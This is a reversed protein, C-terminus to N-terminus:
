CIRPLNQKLTLINDYNHSKLVFLKMLLFSRYTDSHEVAEELEALLSKNSGNTNQFFDSRISSFLLFLASKDRDLLKAEEYVERAKRWNELLYYLEAIYCCIEAKYTINKLLELCTIYDQLAQVDKFLKANVEGRNRYLLMYSPFSKIGLNLVELAKESNNCISETRGLNNYLIAKEQDFFLIEKSFKIGIEYGKKAETFSISTISCIEIMANGIWTLPIFLSEKCSKYCTFCQLFYHISLFYKEYAYAKLGMLAYYYFENMTDKCYFFAKTLVRLIKINERRSWLVVCLRFYTYCCSPVLQIADRIIKLSNEDDRQGIAYDFQQILYLYKPNNQFVNIIQNTNNCQQIKFNSPQFEKIEEEYGQQSSLLKNTEKSFDEIEKDIEKSIKLQSSSLHEQLILNDGPNYKIELEKKTNEFSLFCCKCHPYEHVGVLTSSTPFTKPAVDVAKKRRVCANQEM